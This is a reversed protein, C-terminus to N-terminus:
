DKDLWDPEMIDLKRLSGHSSFLLGVCRVVVLGRGEIGKPGPVGGVKCLRCRLRRYCM